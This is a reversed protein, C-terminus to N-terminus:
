RRAPAASIPQRIQAERGAALGEIWRSAVSFHWRDVDFVEPFVVPVIRRKAFDTERDLGARAQRDQAAVPGALGSQQANQASKRLGGATVDLQQAIRSSRGFGSRLDADDPVADADIVLQRCNFVQLQEATKVAQLLRFGRGGLPEFPRAQAADAVAQHTLEGAAHPLAQGHSPRKQMLGPDHQQVLWEGSQVIAGDLHELAQETFRKATAARHEHGCM